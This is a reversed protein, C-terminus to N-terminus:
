GNGGGTKQSKLKKVGQIWRLALQARAVERKIQKEFQDLKKDPMELLNFVPISRIFEYMPKEKHRM